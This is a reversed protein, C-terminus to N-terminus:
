DQRGQLTQENKTEGGFDNIVSYFTTLGNLSETRKKTLQLNLENKPEIMRKSFKDVSAVAPSDKSKRLEISNFTIFYPSDNKVKLTSGNVSFKLNRYAELSSQPLNVPRYFFKIRTRFALQVLNTGSQIMATPKPPIELMNFWFLTERDQSLAPNMAMIRVAQGKAPDIRIVPPTIIFPVSSQGPKAKPAGDDMWMQLLYTNKGNNKLQLVSEKDKASYVIRTGNIVVDAFAHVSVVSSAILIIGSLIKKFM